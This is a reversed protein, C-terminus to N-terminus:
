EAKTGNASQEDGSGADLPSKRAVKALGDQGQLGANLDCQPESARLKTFQLYPISRHLTVAKDTFRNVAAILQAVYQSAKTKQSKRFSKARKTAM